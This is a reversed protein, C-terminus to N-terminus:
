KSSFSVHFVKKGGYKDGYLEKVKLEDVLDLKPDVMEKGQKNLEEKRRNEEAKLAEIGIEKGDLIFVFDSSKVADGGSLRFVIPLTFYVDVAEGDQKGPIWDPMANVVRLAEADCEPSIGRVITADRIKGTKSVVFRLTVRGQVGEKHAKAPYRLSDGIFKKMAEEGGPFKPMQEVVTMPKGDSIVAEKGSKGEADLRFVIPLIFYVDVVEGKQKGPIWDPMANVVRLAEADCEPSIGRTVTADKIKGTKSIVFRLAVPGQVGDKHAKAPYRLSDGIFKKMAEEGGPYKPMQEAVAIPKGDQFTKEDTYEPSIENYLEDTVLSKIDSSAQVSNGLLLMAMLPLALLYRAIRYISTREKNMMTIRKKLQSVNFNNIMPIGTNKNTTQLLIYQYEKMNIGLELVGQDALYELNIRMENRLLWAFPNWWFCVCLVEFLIVDISHFQRAHVEEHAIIENLKGEEQLDVNVFIWNFFSFPSVEKNKLEVIHFLSVKRSKNKSKLRIVSFLQVVLRSILFVSVSITILSLLHWINFTSLPTTEVIVDGVEIESLWYMYAPAVAEEQQPVPMEIIFVPFVLSFIITFLFYARRIKFFTDKKLFLMYLGYFLALSISAKILYTAITSEM